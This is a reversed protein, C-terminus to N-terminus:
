NKLKFGNPFKFDEDTLKMQTVDYATSTWIYKNKLDTMVYKLPLAGDTAELYKNWESLNHKSFKQPVTKILPSYYYVTSTNETKILIANCEYGAIKETKTLKTVEFKQAGQSSADFKVVSSDPSFYYYSNSNGNYLQVWQNKENLSKYNNTDIFFLQEKGYFPSLRDTIDDGALNAFSYKYSIKGIFVDKGTFSTLVLILAIAVFLFRRSMKMQHIELNM